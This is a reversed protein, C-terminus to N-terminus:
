IEVEMNEDYIIDTNDDNWKIENDIFL